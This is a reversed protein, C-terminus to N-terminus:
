STASAMSASASAAVIPFRKTASISSAEEDPMAIRQTASRNLRGATGSSGVGVGGNGRARAAKGSGSRRLLLSAAFGCSEATPLACRTRWLFIPSSKPSIGRTFAVFSNAFMQLDRGNEAEAISPNFVRKLSFNGDMVASSSAKIPRAPGPPHSKGGGAASSTETQDAEQDWVAGGLRM